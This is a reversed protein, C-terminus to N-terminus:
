LLLSEIKEPEALRLMEYGVGAAGYFLSPDFTQVYGSPLFTYNGREAKRKAMRCLIEGAENM